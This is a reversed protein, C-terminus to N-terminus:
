NVVCSKESEIGSEGVLNVSSQPQDSFTLLGLPQLLRHDDGGRRSTDFWIGKATNRSDISGYTLKSIFIILNCMISILLRVVAASSSFLYM